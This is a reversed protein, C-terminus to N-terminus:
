RKMSGLRLVEEIFGEMRKFHSGKWYYQQCSSCYMYENYMTLIRPPIKNQQVTDLSCKVLPTNCRLCRTFPQSSHWLDFRSFTEVLQEEPVSSQIHFYKTVFPNEKYAISKSLICREEIKAISLISNFSFSSNYATDFGFLRLYRALKGLHVDAIFKINRLPASHLHLLLRIDFSEFVPYLSIRDGESLPTEASVSKGNVLILEVRDFSINLKDLLGKVNFPESFILPFENYRHGSPLFENLEAYCRVFLIKDTTSM